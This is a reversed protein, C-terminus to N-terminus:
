QREAHDTHSRRLLSSGAADDSGQETAPELHRSGCGPKWDPSGDNADAIAPLNLAAALANLGAKDFGILTQQLKGDEDLLYMTPVSQPDYARTFKLGSDVSVGYEIGMDKVFQQTHAHGDQSLGIVQVADAGLANLYPLALQCTPCDTEFFVLLAKKGRRYGPLSLLNPLQDMTQSAM